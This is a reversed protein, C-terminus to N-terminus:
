RTEGQPVALLREGRDLRRNRQVLGDAVVVAALEAVEEGVLARGVRGLRGTLRHAALRHARGDPPQRLTLAPQELQAEAEVALRGGELRDALLQPQRALADALQLRLRE